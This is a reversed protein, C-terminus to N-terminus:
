PRAWLSREPTVWIPISSIKGLAPIHIVGVDVVEVAV